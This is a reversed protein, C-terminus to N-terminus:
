NAGGSSRRVEMIGGLVVMPAPSICVLKYVRNRSTNNLYWRMRWSYVGLQSFERVDAPFFTIGGNDSWYIEVHPKFLANYTSSGPAPTNSGETIMFVNPDTETVMFQPNGSGDAVEDIIFVTNDFPTQSNIFTQEGWVFDIQVYDTIFESYDEESIIPTIREYRFPLRFYADNAQSNAAGPNTIENDYFQGSFEYVTGDGQVSVFHRNNIYVHKQARNREGNLEICRQWTKTEFNYEISNNQQEQDLIQTGTYFGASLRYYIVDEYEYLFGDSNFELFPSLAGTNTNRQFLVSIAKTSIKEPYGGRSMMVQILGDQNQALWVMMNFDTDLSLSDAIGFDWSYTSSQKWPFTVPSDGFAPVLQTPINSWIDTTYDTFIYLTNNLVAFQRIIGTAQAFVAGGIGGFCTAPDFVSGGLLVVSLNFQSSNFNAVVLRNGFTAIFTPNAPCSPDTVVYFAGAVMAGNATIYPEKYVYLKQGDVFCSYTIPGSVISTFFVDSNLSQMLGNSIPTQNYNSDIQYITDGDVVYWYNISRFIGRPETSFILKNQGNFNFHRRGLTPYLAMKKKGSPAPTMTWNACDEPSFQRFRQKDYSGIIPLPAIGM